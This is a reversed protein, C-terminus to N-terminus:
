RLKHLSDIVAQIRDRVDTLRKLAAAKRSIGDRNIRIEELAAEIKLGKDHVLYKIMRANDIDGPTYYRTGKDNRRPKLVNFQSEWFRLTSPAVDIMEAVESIKYYKKSTTQAMPPLLM